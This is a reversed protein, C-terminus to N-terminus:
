RGSLSAMMGGSAQPLAYEFQNIINPNENVLHFLKKLEPNSTQGVNRKAFDNINAGQQLGKALFLFDTATGTGKSQHIINLARSAGEVNGDQVAKIYYLYNPIMDLDRSGLQMKAPAANSPMLGEALGGTKEKPM